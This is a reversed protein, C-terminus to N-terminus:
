RPRAGADGGDDSGDMAVMSIRLKEKEGRPRARTDGDDGSGDMTAVSIRVKEEEETTSMKDNVIDLQGTGDGSWGGGGDRGHMVM